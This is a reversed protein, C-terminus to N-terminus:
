QVEPVACHERLFGKLADVDFFGRDTGDRLRVTAGGQEVEKDGVVLMVPVKEMQASRIKAGLKESSEGFTARLGAATLADAIKQGHENHKDSVTVVRVQEPSLWAPFAGAYEEVLIGIFREISGLLARHLMVPQEKEGKPNVYELTFREPNNFDLQLTSCQWKRDLCDTLKVDIKPGYFAGGGVDVQYPLGHRKIAAELYAEAKTWDEDRGVYKEPKTSLNVEFKTFGFTKLVKLIFGIVRDIEAEVQDWRCFLHADDQTFGRVRMLGHMVGALEYRYVTGLEALRLPLERYSRARSKVMMIHFPCNMPKCVYDHGDVSMPSFMGERYFNWHGSVKWLDSKAIHPSYVVEYGGEFHMKRWQEEIITRLRGGKPLWMVLGPGVEETYHPEVNVEVKVATGTLPGDVVKVGEISKKQEPTMHGRVRIDANAAGPAPAAHLKVTQRIKRGSFTQEAAQMVRDVIMRDVPADAEVGVYVDVEGGEEYSHEDYRESVLFLELEKGIKRHDRKKAEELRHLHKDLEEKKPFAIGRVRQLSQKTADGRWYAASATMLKLGKIFGAHPLHPGRCLDVFGADSFLTLQEGDPIWGLIERKYENNQGAAEFISSAEDKGVERREFATKEDVLKKMEVEIKELDDPGFHRGGVDFDYYFEDDHSKPGMTVKAGPFLRLVATALIHEASHNLTDRGEPTDVKLLEVKQGSKLSVRLDQVAGDVRAVVVVDALRPSIAKALDMSTAGDPLERQNGDPLIVQIAM